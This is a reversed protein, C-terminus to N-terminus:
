PPSSHWRPRVWCSSRGPHRDELPTSVFNFAVRSSQSPDECELIFEVLKELRRAIERQSKLSLRVQIQRVRLSVHRKTEADAQREVAASVQRDTLRLLASIARRYADLYEPTTQSPDSLLRDAISDYVVESRGNASRKSHEIILGVDQLAHVHQYLTEPSCGM